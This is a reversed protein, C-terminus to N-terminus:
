HPSASCWPREQLLAGALLITLGFLFALAMATGAWPGRSLTFVIGLLLITLVPVWLSLRVWFDLSKASGRLSNASWALCIPIILLLLSGSFIANGLTSSARNTNPPERLDLFDHGYHQFVGYLAVLVGMFVVAALLRQLQTPTKLHTAVVGFLLVYAIVTYASYSDQGPVDGWMSVSFSTSLFTSLLTTALYFLAALMLLRGPQERLWRGLASVWTKPSYLTRKCDFSLFPPFPEKFTWEVIWLIAMLGVLTRLIVIKPLEFSGIVSSWEGFDRGLFALPVLVVALLWLTELGRNAWLVVNASTATAGVKELYNPLFVGPGSPSDKRLPGNMGLGSGCSFIISRANRGEQIVPQLGSQM